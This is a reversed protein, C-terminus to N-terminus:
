SARIAGFPPLCHGKRVCRASGCISREDRANRVRVEVNWVLADVLAATRCKERTLAEGRRRYATSISVDCPRLGALNV